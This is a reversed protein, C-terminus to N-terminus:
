SALYTQGLPTSDRFFEFMSLPCDWRLKGDSKNVFIHTDNPRAFAKDGGVMWEASGYVVCIYQDHEYGYPAVWFTGVNWGPRLADDVLQRAEEFTVGPRKDPKAM